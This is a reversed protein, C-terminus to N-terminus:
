GNETEKLDQEKLKELIAMVREAEEQSDFVIHWREAGGDFKNDVAYNELMLHM